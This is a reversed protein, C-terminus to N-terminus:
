YGDLFDDLGKLGEKYQNYALINKMSKSDCDPCGNKEKPILSITELTKLNVNDEIQVLIDQWKKKAGSTGLDVKTKLTSAERKLQELYNDLSTIGDGSTLGERMVNSPKMVAISVYIVLIFIVACGLYKGIEVSNMIYIRILKYKKQV